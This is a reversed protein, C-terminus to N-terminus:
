KSPFDDANIIAAPVAKQEHQELLHMAISTLLGIVAMDDAFGLPGLLDPLMDIPMFTYALAIGIILRIYNPTTKSFLGKVLKPLSM